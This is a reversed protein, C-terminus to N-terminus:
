HRATGLGSWGFGSRGSSENIRRLERPPRRAAIDPPVKHFAPCTAAVLRQVDTESGSQLQVDKGDM